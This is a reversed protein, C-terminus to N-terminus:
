KREKSGRSLLRHQIALDIDEDALPQQSAHMDISQAAQIEFLRRLRQQLEEAFSARLLLGREAETLAAMDIAYREGDRTVAARLRLLRTWVAERDRREREAAAARAQARHSAGGLVEAVTPDAEVPAPGVTPATPVALVRDGGDDRKLPPPAAVHERVAQMAASDRLPKPGHLKAAYLRAAGHRIIGARPDIAARIARLREAVVAHTATLKVPAIAMDVAMAKLRKLSDSRMDALRLAGRTFTEMLTVSMDDLKAAREIRREIAAIRTGGAHTRAAVSSAIRVLRDRTSVAAASIPAPEGVSAADRYIRGLREVVASRADPLAAGSSLTFRNATWDARLIATPQAANAVAAAESSGQAVTTRMRKLVDGLRERREVTRMDGVLAAIYRMMDHTWVDIGHQAADLKAVGDVVASRLGSVVGALADLRDRRRTMAALRRRAWTAQQGVKGREPPAMARAKNSLHTYRKDIGAADLTANIARVVALRRARIGAPTNIDNQKAAAFEWEYSAVRRCQRLSYVIHCHYNRQDGTEDPLHIGVTYPLGRAEFWRCIRRVARRRQRATLEAPLAIVESIYVNANARDHKELAESARYHAALENRDEAINSWWGREGGELADERVGYLAAREAEGRRWRRGKSSKFGRATFAYHISYLRDPGRSDSSGTTGKLLTDIQRHYLRRPTRSLNRPRDLKEVRVRIRRRLAIEAERDDRRKKVRQDRVKAREASREAAQRRSALNRASRVAAIADAVATSPQKLAAYGVDM